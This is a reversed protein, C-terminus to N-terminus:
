RSPVIFSVAYNFIQKKNVKFKRLARQFVYRGFDGYMGMGEFRISSIIASIGSGYERDIYKKDESLPITDSGYPPVINRQIINGKYEPNEWLFREVILRAYDRLLIDPYVKEGGFVNEYVFEALSKYQENDRELCKCCAGFVVGYLRQIVYPDNVNKFKELLYECMSFNVKLIEIMAKSTIDRLRRNSSTLIWSFLTLLLEIQKSNTIDLYEGKNYMKILQIIRNSEDLSIENIYITWLYDRCNLEYSLLLEHLFEANLPHMCKNSNSILMEWFVNTYIKYKGLLNMLDNVSISEKRRWQYSSIYRSFIDLKEDEDSIMDILEICEEQYREAYLVCINIFMDRNGYNSIKGNEVNLIDKTLYSKIDQKSHFKSITSRACYYDNMQDYAFYYREENGYVHDHLIHEKVLSNIFPVATINYNKWYNLEFIEQKGISSKGTKLFYESLEEVFPLVLDEIGTYGAKRLGETM